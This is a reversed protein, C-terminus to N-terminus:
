ENKTLASLLNVVEQKIMDRVRRFEDLSKGKPDPIEWGIVQAGPLSPCIVDCGMTVLYDFKLDALDKFGKPRAGSIDIGVEKMVAIAEPLVKAEPNSGASAYEVDKKLERCFAEAIQSRCSNGVCAFLIKTM